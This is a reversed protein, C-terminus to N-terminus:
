GNLRREDRQLWIAVLGLGGAALCGIHLIQLSVLRYFPNDDSWPAFPRVDAHMIGDLVVHSYVGLSAGIAVAVMRLQQWDFHNPLRIRGAVSRLAAFLGVTAVAVLTAGAFTHLFRHLPFRGALVNYITELDMLCNAGCFALLSVQRPAAAHLAAGAGFHFPTVPV